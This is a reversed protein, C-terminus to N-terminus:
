VALELAAHGLLGRIIAVGVPKVVHRDFGAAMTDRRDRDSGTIAALFLNKNNARLQRAVEYGSVDPLGIDLLAIDPEFRAAAELGAVGSIASISDHGLERLLQATTEATGVHDDVVLIRHKKPATVPALSLQAITRWGIREGDRWRTARPGTIMVRLPDSLPEMRRLRTGLEDYDSIPDVVWHPVGAARAARRLAEMGVTENASSADPVAIVLVSATDLTDRLATRAGRRSAPTLDALIEAPLAGLEDRQEFTCVGSVAIGVARAARDAGREVGSQGTHLVVLAM